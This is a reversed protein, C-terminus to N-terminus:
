SGTLGAIRPQSLMGLCVYCKNRYFVQVISVYGIWMVGAWIAWWDKSKQMKKLIGLDPGWWHIKTDLEREWMFSDQFSSREVHEGGKGVRGGGGM